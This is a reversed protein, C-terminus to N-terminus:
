GWTRGLMTISVSDITEVHGAKVVTDPLSYRSFVDDMAKSKRTLTAVAPTRMCLEVAAKPISFSSSRVTPKSPEAWTCLPCVTPTRSQESM